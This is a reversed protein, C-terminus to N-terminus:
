LDHRGVSVGSLKFKGDLDTTTGILPDSGMVVVTAGIISMKSEQDVVTGRITQTQASVSLTFLLLLASLLFARM